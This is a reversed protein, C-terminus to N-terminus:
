EDGHGATTPRCGDAGSGDTSMVSCDTSFIEDFVATVAAIIREIEPRELADLVSDLGDFLTRLPSVYWKGDVEHVAIGSPDFDAFAESFADLLEQTAESDGFGNQEALEDISDFDTGCVETAEEGMGTVVLCGAAYTLTVTMPEDGSDLESEPQTITVSISDIGVSRRNGEGAVSYQVDSITAEVPLDDASQEAEGLFLPAYRHLAEVESPDLLAVMAAVDSAVMADLMADVALEPEEAGVAALGVLPIDRGSDRGRATEAMSYFASLYWRGDREVTTLRVDDFENSEMPQDMEPREGAFAEDILLDGLPVAEGDVVASATGSLVINTIDTVNTPEVTVQVDGFRLDLGGVDDLSAEASLVELRKMHDVLDIMPQRLAERESPLLLDIVGLLDEEELAAILETGVDAPSAAGGDDGGTIKIVAFTGAALLAVVGVIVAVLTGRSRRPPEPADVEVVTAAPAVVAQDSETHPIELDANDDPAAAPEDFDDPNGM